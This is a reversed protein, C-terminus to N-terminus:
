KNLDIIVEVDNPIGAEKREARNAPDDSGGGFGALRWPYSKHGYKIHMLSSIAQDCQHMMNSELYEPWDIGYESPLRWGMIVEPQQSWSAMERVFKVSYPTKKIFINGGSYQVSNAVKSFDLDMFIMADRRALRSLTYWKNNHHFPTIDQGNALCFFGITDDSCMMDSDLYFLIDNDNMRELMMYIVYHKWMWLGVGRQQSLLEHNRKKYEPDIDSTTWFIAEDIGEKSKCSPITKTRGLTERKEGSGWTAVWYKQGPEKKCNKNFKSITTENNYIYKWYYVTSSKYYKQEYPSLNLNVRSPAEQPLQLITNNLLKKKIEIQTKLRDSEEFLLSLWTSNSSSPENDKNYCLNTKRLKFNTLEINNNNGVIAMSGISSWTLHSNGLRSRLFDMHMKFKNEINESSDGQWNSGGRPHLVEFGNLYLDSNLKGKENKILRELEIPILRLNSLTGLDSGRSWIMPHICINPHEEIWFRTAGGTDSGKKEWSIKSIDPIRSPELIHLGPHLHYIDDHIEYIASIPCKSQKMYNNVSFPRWLFMDSNAFMVYGNKPLLNRYSFDYCAALSDEPCYKIIFGMEHSYKTLTEGIKSNMTSKSLVLFLEFVPDTLFKEFLKLQLEILDTRCCEQIIIRVPKMTTVELINKDFTNNQQIIEGNNSTGLYTLLLVSFVFLLLVSRNIQQHM